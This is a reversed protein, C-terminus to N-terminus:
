IPQIGVATQIWIRLRNYKDGDTDWSWGKKGLDTVIKNPYDDDDYKWIDFKLPQTAYLVNNETDDATIYAGGGQYNRIQVDYGMQEKFFKNVNIKISSAIGSNDKLDGEAELVVQLTLYNKIIHGRMGFLTFNANELYDDNWEIYPAIDDNNDLIVNFTGMPDNNIYKWLFNIAIFKEGDYYLGVIENDSFRMGDLANEDSNLVDKEGTGFNLTVEGDNAKNFKVYVVMGAKLENVTLGRDEITYDNGDNSTTFFNSKAYTDIAKALSDTDDNLEYGAFEVVNELEKSHNDWEDATLQDGTEKGSLNLM